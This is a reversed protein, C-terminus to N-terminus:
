TCFACQFLAPSGAASQVGHHGSAAGYGFYFLLEDGSASVIPSGSALQANGLGLWDQGAGTRPRMRPPLRIFPERPPPPRAIHFGDRSFGLHISNNKLEGGNPRFLMALGHLILSEYALGDVNYVDCEGEHCDHGDPGFWPVPEGPRWGACQFYQQIFISHFPPVHARPGCRRAAAGLLQARALPREAWWLLSERTPQLGLSSEGGCGM